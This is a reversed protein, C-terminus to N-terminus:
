HVINIIKGKVVIINKIIKGYLYKETRKDSIVAKKINEIDEHLPFKLKYKMKGNFMLPYEFYNEILFKEEFFPFKADCISTRYGLSEWLEECIHPAYPYILILLKELIEKKNCNLSSLENVTIMFTSVSTNFSFNIIDEEIKKIAKHLIKLESDNAKEETVIFNNGNYFLRWLKKLFSFVGNIGETKWPKSQELPGLFMEYLRLTDAGYKEIIEDPNVVNYKSKSMKEVDRGCIYKGEELDFEANKYEEKWNKFKEIDLIDNKVFSVDVHIPTTKYKDKLNKSIFKNSNELRFVFASTGLIMGQNVLKKFPEDKIALGKDYLFKNWFRSYLLHGTAHESGGVYLDVDQWYDINEKNAFNNKNQSDMYRIFYWSSGAWGPMTNKEIEYGEKTKWNKARGLPSEGNETPLFKDIEPLELPLFSYDFPYPVNDKYYIPIPEGWYRQRSFVADRLRYQIKEKGIERQELQELVLNVAKEYDEGNLFDSNIYLKDKADYAKESIDVDQIRKIDLNFTKAFNYDRQDGCPVAMIAGSGYSNLVYDSIWVPLKENTFPHLVYAGTFVGTINKIESLRDRENKTKTNLIYEEIKSKYETSTIKEVLKNEPALVIFTVGFITDPRTTFVEIKEKSNSINFFINAGKSKGIWNKQSLKISESWDLNDLGKLLRESYATIRMMWQRMKKKEVPYGGRESLGDKVEDNALVTGLKPCWNVEVDDLFTLRYKLLIEQKEKESFNNWEESSFIKCFDCYATTNKNGEKEFLKILEEIKEAKDSKTNYWSNYLELFIWQTFKYYKPDSTRIERSWDFCFGMKDLQERYRNVNKETTIRPHQGTEIAYQEAPLGFSDYGMPHLVNFGKLRKFRSYIDSAIYGLPHGVHLGAGSPYPFMDLVYFKPKNKDEKVEFIKNERWYKQWKKEIELYNYEM